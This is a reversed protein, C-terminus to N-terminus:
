VGEGRLVGMLAKNVYLIDRGSRRVDLVGAAVLTNLWRVATQKSVGTRQVVSATRTYPQEMLTALLDANVSKLLDRLRDALARQVDSVRAIMNVSRTATAEVGKLIYELWPTWEANATVARLRGYYESKTEIIYRSLYLLPQRLLGAECLMLVNLIRGTRGNGDTFPHIAEFQYHVLAMALLPDLDGPAHVFEFLRELLPEPKDPPTYTRQGTGPNGIYIGGSRRVQVDHGRIASCVQVATRSSLPRTAIDGFGQWLADRYRLAERAAPTASADSGSGAVSFLDDTTTVINEIRSSAQAELLTLPGLLVQPNPLRAAAEDFRALARHAAIAATFVPKTELETTPPLPPVDFPLDPNWTVCSVTDVRRM